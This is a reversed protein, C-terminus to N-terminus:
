GSDLGLGSVPGLPINLSALLSVLYPSMEANSSPMRMSGLCCLCMETPNLRVEKLTQCINEFYMKFQHFSM